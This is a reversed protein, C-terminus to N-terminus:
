LTNLVSYRMYYFWSLLLQYSKKKLKVKNLHNGTINPAIVGKARSWKDCAPTLALPTGLADIQAHLYSKTSVCNCQIRSLILLRKPAFTRLGHDPQNAHCSNDIIQSYNASWCRYGSRLPTRENIKLTGSFNLFKENANANITECLSNVAQRSSSNSITQRNTRGDKREETWGHRTRCRMTMDVRNVFCSNFFHKKNGNKGYSKALCLQRSLVTWKVKHKWVNQGTM